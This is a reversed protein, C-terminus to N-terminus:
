RSIIMFTYQDEHLYGNNKDSKFSFQIKGVSKRFISQCLIEHFKKWLFCLQELRVFPHVSMAFSIDKKPITRVQKFVVVNKSKRHTARFMNLKMYIHFLIKM